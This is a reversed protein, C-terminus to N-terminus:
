LVRIRDLALRAPKSPCAAMVNRASDYYEYPAKGACLTMEEVCACLVFAGEAKGGGAPDFQIGMGYCIKCDPRGYHPAHDELHFKDAPNRMEEGKKRTTKVSTLSSQTNM